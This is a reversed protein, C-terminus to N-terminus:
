KRQCLHRLVDLASIVGVLVGSNDVVFLRRVGLDVMTEVVERASADPRVCFVVPTM